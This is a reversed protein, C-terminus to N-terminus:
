LLKTHDWSIIKVPSLGALGTISAGVTLVAFLGGEVTETM